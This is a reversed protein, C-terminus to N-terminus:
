SAEAFSTSQSKSFINLPKSPLTSLGFVDEPSKSFCGRNKKIYKNEWQFTTGTSCILITQQSPTGFMIFYKIYLRWIMFHFFEDESVM